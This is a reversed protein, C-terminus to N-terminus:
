RDVTGAYDTPTIYGLASDPRLTNDEIRWDEVEAARNRGQNAGLPLGGLGYQTV